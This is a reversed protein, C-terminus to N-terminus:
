LQIFQAVPQRLPTDLTITKLLKMKSDSPVSAPYRIYLISKNKWRPPKQWSSNVFIPKLKDNYFLFHIKENQLFDENIVIASYNKSNWLKTAYQAMKEQAGGWFIMYANKYHSLYMHFYLSIEFIAFIIAGVFAVRIWLKKVKVISQIGIAIIVSFPIVLLLAHLSNPSNAVAVAAPTVLLIALIIKKIVKSKERLLVVLGAVLFPLQWRFLFGFESSSYFRVNDQSKLFLEQLSFYSLFSKVYIFSFAILGQLSSKPAISLPLAQETFTTTQFFRVFGHSGFTFLMLPLNIVITYIAMSFISKISALKKWFLLFFITSATVPTLLRFSSYTYSAFALFLLTLILYPIKKNKYFLSFLWLGITFLCVAMTAEYAGRSFQISWPIIALIFASLIPIHQFEEKLKKSEFSLLNKLFLYLFLVTLTGSLVSPFRVAFANKGFIAIPIIDAYIYGPLKYEGFAKFWLPYAAGYEDKGYTLVSYANYGLSVEDDYLGPPLNRVHYVRLFFALLVVILIPVFKNQKIFKFM